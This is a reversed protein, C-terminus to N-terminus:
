GLASLNKTFNLITQGPGKRLIILWINVVAAIFEILNIIFMGQMDAPIPWRWAIGDEGFGGLGTKCADKIGVSTPYTYTVNNIDIGDQAAKHIFIKWLELDEVDWKALKQKGYQECKSLRFRLRNLFYRGIPMIYEVHNLRGITTHLEDKNVISSSIM